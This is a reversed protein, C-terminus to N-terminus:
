VSSRGGWCSERGPLTPPEIDKHSASLGGAGRLDGGPLLRGSRCRQAPLVQLDPPGLPAPALAALPVGDLLLVALLSLDPLGQRSSAQLDKAGDQGGGAWQHHEAPPDRATQDQQHLGWRVRLQYEGHRLGLSVGGGLCLYNAVDLIIGFLKQKM